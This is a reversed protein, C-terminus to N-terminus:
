KNLVLIKKGNLLPFLVTGKFPNSIRIDSKNQKNIYLLHYTEYREDGNYCIHVIYYEQGNELTEKPEVMISVGSKRKSIRNIQKNAKQTIPLILVIDVIEDETLLKKPTSPAEVIPDSVEKLSDQKEKSSKSQNQCSILLLGAFLSLCLTQKSNLFTIFQIKVIEYVLNNNSIEQM